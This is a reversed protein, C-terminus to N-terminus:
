MLQACRERNDVANRRRQVAPAVLEVAHLEGLEPLREEFLREPQAVEGLLQEVQRPEVGPADAGPRPGEPGARRHLQEDRVDCGIVTLVHPDLDLRLALEHRVRDGEVAHDAIEERVGQLVAAKRDRHPAVVVTPREMDDDLAHEIWRAMALHNRYDPQETTDRGARNTRVMFTVGGGLLAVVAVLVLAGGIIEGM